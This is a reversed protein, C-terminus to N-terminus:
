TVVGLNAVSNEFLYYSRWINENVFLSDLQVGVTYGFAVHAVEIALHDHVLDILRSLLLKIRLQEIESVDFTVHCVVREPGVQNRFDFYAM